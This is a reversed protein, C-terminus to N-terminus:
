VSAVTRRLGLEPGISEDYGLVHRIRATDMTVDVDWNAELTAATEPDEVLEGTWNVAAAIARAWAVESLAEREGVNFVNGPASESLAALTIAAAVDEVYGRTCRWAAEAANLHISRAGIRFRDVYKAVRRQKDNPGYVMPLRLITAAGGRWDMAAREVLIKEYSFLMDDPTRAARRYPFLEQRLPAREDSPTADVSGRGIGLFAGYTAYVDGSSIVVLREVSSPLAALLIEIDRRAYAIMDVVVSPAATALTGTLAGVDGRDAELSRAPLGASATTGRAITTVDAGTEALQRTVHQGIFGTGGLVTVLM